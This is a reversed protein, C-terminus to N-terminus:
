ALLDRRTSIEGFGSTVLRRFTTAAPTSRRHVRLRLVGAEDFDDKMNDCITDAM